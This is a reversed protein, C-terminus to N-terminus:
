RAPSRDKRVQNLFEDHSIESAPDDALEKLRQEIVNDEADAHPLSEWLTAMLIAREDNSLELAANQIEALTSVCWRYVPCQSAALSLGNARRRKLPVSM